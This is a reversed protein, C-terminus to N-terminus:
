DFLKVGKTADDGWIEELRADRGCRWRYYKYRKPNELYYNQHYAEAPYFAEFPLIDVAISQNLIKGAKIKSQEALTNEAEGSVFIAPKYTYGRDCFQGGGDVPDVNAWYIELLDEYSIKDSEYRVQIVEIHGTGGQSVEKYSPNAIPGGSFGSITELVGDRKDFPGEMCWFCGGAFVATREAAQVSVSFLFLATIITFFRM